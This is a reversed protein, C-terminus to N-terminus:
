VDESRYNLEIINKIKAEYKKHNNNFPTISRTYPTIPKLKIKSSKKYNSNNNNAVINNNNNNNNSDFIKNINDSNNKLLLNEQKLKDNKEREINLLSNNRKMNNNNNNNNSNNSNFQEIKEYRYIKMKKFTSKAVNFFKSFNNSFKNLMENFNNKMMENKGFDFGNVIKKLQHISVANQQYYTKISSSLENILLVFEDNYITNFYNSNNNNIFHNQSIYAINNNDYTSSLFNSSKPKSQSLKQEKKM